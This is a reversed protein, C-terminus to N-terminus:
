NSLFHVRCVSLNPLNVCLNSLYSSEVFELLSISLCYKATQNISGISKVSLDSLAIGRYNSLNPQKIALYISRYIPEVFISPDSLSISKKSPNVFRIFEISPHHFLIFLYSFISISLTLCTRTTAGNWYKPCPFLTVDPFFVLHNPMTRRRKASNDGAM